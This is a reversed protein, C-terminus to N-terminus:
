KNGGGGAPPAGGPRGGGRGQAMIESVKKIADASLGAKAMRAERADNIVKMKATREEPPTDRTIGAATMATRDSYIAIVSDTQADTLGAPKLREKMAALRAAPDQQGGGQAMLTTFSCAVVFVVLAIAKKM